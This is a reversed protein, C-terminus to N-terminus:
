LEQVVGPETLALTLTSSEIASAVLFTYIAEM